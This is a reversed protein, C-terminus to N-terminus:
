SGASSVLRLETIVDNVASFCSSLPHGGGAVVSLALEESSILAARGHAYLRIHGAQPLAHIGTATLQTSCEEMEDVAAIAAVRISEHSQGGIVGGSEGWYISATGDAFAVLTASIDNPLGLDAIVGWVGGPTEPVPIGLEEASASLASSRLAANVGGPPEIM